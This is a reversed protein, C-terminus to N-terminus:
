QFSPTGIIALCIGFLLAGLAVLSVIGVVTWIATWLLLRSARESGPANWMAGALALEVGLVGVASFITAYLNNTLAGVGYAVVALLTANL